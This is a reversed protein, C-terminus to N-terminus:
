SAIQEAVRQFYSPFGSFAPELWDMWEIVLQRAEDISTAQGLIVDDIEKAIEREAFGLEFYYTASDSPLGYKLRRQLRDCLDVADQSNAAVSRAALCERVASLTLTAQFGFAQECMGIVSDIDFRRRGNGWAFTAGMSTLHDHLDRYTSGSMWQEAIVLGVEPPDLSNLQPHRVTEIIIPWLVRFMELESESAVILGLNLAVWQDIRVSDRVGLLTRGFRRRKEAEPVVAMLRRAITSFASALEEKQNETALHYAFTDRCLSSAKAEFEASSDVFDDVVCNAMLYSQVSAVVDQKSRIQSLIGSSRFGRDLLDPTLNAAWELLPAPDDILAEILAHIPVDLADTEQENILPSVLGLLSSGTPDVFEPSLLSNAEKWRWSERWQDKGDFVKPDAFIVTGEGHIGARGARGMLNRFDRRRIAKAGQRVGSILLYRIPLNVGQALTSTCAVFRILGERIAHEIALRLGHPTGAHHAFIGLRAAKTLYSDGGFNLVYLGTLSALEEANCVASPANFPSGREYLAVSDTLVAAAGDRKGCFVAVAGNDILKLALYLAISRSSSLDPFYRTVRERGRLPLAVPALVRPVFFSSSAGPADYFILRGSTASAFAITRETQLREDALVAGSDGLLWSAVESANSIVASILVLQAGPPLVKALATLLLEYTVGRAGTDFQHGEDFMVLDFQNTIEPRQRMLYLLKEPTVVIVCKRREFQLGFLQAFVDMDPELVDGIHNVSVGEGAFSDKLAGTIEDCLAKFPAVILAARSRGSLLASRIVLETARTKGASTPMQVVASAGRLLGAHGFQRQSPWLEGLSGARDLYEGWTHLPLESYRSLLTRASNRLRLLIICCLLESYLLEAPTGVAYAHNRVDLILNSFDTHDGQYFRRLAVCLQHIPASELSPPERQWPIGLAWNLARREPLIREDSFGSLRRLQVISNGPMDSLYYGCASLTLLESSISPGLRSDVYAGLVAGAFRLEGSDTLESTTGDFHNKLIGAAADGLTGVLLPFLDELQLSEPIRIHLDPPVFYEYMKGKARAIAAAHISPQEPRM